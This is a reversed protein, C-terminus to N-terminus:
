PSRDVVVCCRFLVRCGNCCDNAAFFSCCCRNVAHWLAISCHILTAVCTSGSSVRATTQWPAPHISCSAPQSGPLSPSSTRGARALLEVVQPRRPAILVVFFRLIQLGPDFFFCSSNQASRSRLLFYSRNTCVQIM